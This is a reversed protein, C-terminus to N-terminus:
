ATLGSLSHLVDIVTLNLVQANVTNHFWFFFLTKNHTEQVGINYKCVFVHRCVVTLYALTNACYLAIDLKIIETLIFVVTTGPYSSINEMEHEKLHPMEALHDLPCSSSGFLAITGIRIGCLPVDQVHQHVSGTWNSTYFFPLPM